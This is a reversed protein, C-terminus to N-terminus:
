HLCLPPCERDFDCNFPNTTVWYSVDRWDSDKSRFLRKLLIIENQFSVLRSILLSSVWIMRRGLPVTTQYMKGPIFFFIVTINLNNFKKWIQLWPCSPFAKSRKDPGKNSRTLNRVKGCIIASVQNWGM